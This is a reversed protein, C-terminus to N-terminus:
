SRLRTFGRQCLLLHDHCSTRDLILPLVLRELALAHRLRARRRNGVGSLARAAFAALAAAFLLLRALAAARRKSGGPCPCCTMTGAWGPVGCSCSLPSNRPWESM